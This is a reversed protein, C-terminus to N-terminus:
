CLLVNTNHYVQSVIQTSNHGPLQEFVYLRQHYRFGGTPSLHSKLGPQGDVWIILTSFVVSDRGSRSGKILVIAMNTPM